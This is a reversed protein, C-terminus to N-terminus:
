LQKLGVLKERALMVFVQGRLVHIHLNKKLHLNLMEICFISIHLIKALFTSQIYENCGGRLPQELM